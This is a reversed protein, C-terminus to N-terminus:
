QIRFVVKVSDNVDSKPLHGIANPDSNLLQKMQDVSSVDRPPATIRGAFAAQLFYRAYDTESM